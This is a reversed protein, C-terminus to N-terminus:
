VERNKSAESSFGGPYRDALKDINFKLIEEADIDIAHCLLVLYWMVDGLENILHYKDLIHEQFIHKKIHDAVEGAEGTLGLAGEILEGPDPLRGLYDRDKKMLLNYVRQSALGDNTKMAKKEYEKITM